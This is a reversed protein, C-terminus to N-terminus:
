KVPPPTLIFKLEGFSSHLNVTHYHSHLLHVGINQRFYSIFPLDTVSHDKQLNVM